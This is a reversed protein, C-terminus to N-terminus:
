DMARHKLDRVQLFLERSDSPAIVRNCNCWFRLRTTGPPVKVEATWRRGTNDVRLEQKYNGGEIRLNSADKHGTVFTAQIEIGRDSRSPNTVVVEGDAGCWHWNVADNGERAWCGNGLGVVLPHLLKDVYAVKEPNAPQRLFALTRQNVPFFSLRGDEGVIPEQGLLLKVQEELEIAHDNYGNRDIYVGAFGADAITVLMQDLPYSSVASLWRDAARTRMAAYSWRLSDSHLYGKLEDYDAMNNIPPNEPFPCYPLQFIMSGAPVLSEIRKVFEKDQMFQKEVQKRTGVDMLGKPVQDHVGLVVLLVPVFAFLLFRRGVFPRAGLFARDLTLMTAAICFFGIYVSIRNFARLQPSLVFSFVAGFGGITGLLTACLCLIALCHLLPDCERRFTCVLLALFGAAGIAGLAVDDNENVLLAQSNYWGKWKSFWSIRHNTVPSLMQIITLAYTESEIPLRQAVPSRGHEHIYLTSPLIAIGFSFVLVTLLLAATILARRNGSWLWGVMGSVVLFFAGFFSYYANDWGVLFCTVLAIVGDTSIGLMRSARVSRRPFLIDRGTGIWVAVLCMLPVLYYCSFILHGENRLLHYPLFAFLIAGATAFGLSIGLRRFAYLCTVAVLPYSLLYLVNTALGFNHTFLRIVALVGVHLWIPLPFDYLEQQGPAGLLPNIFFHGGRVLNKVLMLGFNADFIYALPITLDISSLHYIRALWIICVAVAVFYPLGAIALGYM